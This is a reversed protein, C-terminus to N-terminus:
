FVNCTAGSTVDDRTMQRPVFLFMSAPHTRRHPPAANHINTSAVDLPDIAYHARTLRVQVCETLGSGFDLRAGRVSLSADTDAVRRWSHNNEALQDAVARM